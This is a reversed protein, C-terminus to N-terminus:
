CSGVFGDLTGSLSRWTHLVGDRAVEVLLKPFVLPAALRCLPRMCCMATCAAWGFPRATLTLRNLPSLRALRQRAETRNPYVPLGILVM